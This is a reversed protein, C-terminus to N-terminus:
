TVDVVIFRKEGVIPNPLLARHADSRYCSRAGNRETKGARHQATGADGPVQALFLRIRNVIPHVEVNGDTQIAVAVIAIQHADLFHALRIPDDPLADFPQAYIWSGDDRRVVLDCRRRAFLHLLVHFLENMVELEEAFSDVNRCPLHVGGDLRRLAFEADVRYRIAGVLRIAELEPGGIKRMQRCEVLHRATMHDGVHNRDDCRLVDHKPRDISSRRLAAGLRSNRGWQPCRLPRMSWQLRLRSPVGTFAATLGSSLPTVSEASARAFISRSIALYGGPCFGEGTIAASAMACSANPQNDVSVISATAFYRSM